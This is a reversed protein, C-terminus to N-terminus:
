TNHDTSPRTGKTLTSDRKEKGHELSEGLGFLLVQQTHKVREPVGLFAIKSNESGLGNKEPLDRSDM